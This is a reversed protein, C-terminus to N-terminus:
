NESSPTLLEKRLMFLYRQLTRAPTTRRHTQEAVNAIKGVYDEAAWCSFLQPNLRCRSLRHCIHWLFHMKPRIKYLPAREQLAQAALQVYLGLYRFGCAAAEQQPGPELLAGSSRVLFTFRALALVCSGCVLGANSRHKDALWAVALRVDAAKGGLWPWSHGTPFHLTALTFGDHTCELRQSNCWRRFEMFLNQLNEELRARVMKVGGALVLLVAGALDNACGDVYLIHMLDRWALAPHFGVIDKLATDCKAYQGVTAIWGSSVTMNTYAMPGDDQSALCETCIQTFGYGRDWHHAHQDWKLDGTTGLWAFIFPGTLPSGQRQARYTVRDIEATDGNYSTPWLGSQMQNLSWSVFALAMQLSVQVGDQSVLRRSPLTAVLFRHRPSHGHTLPSHWSIIYLSQDDLYEAEDAHVCVPVVQNLNRAGQLTPHARFWPESQLGNWFEGLPIHGKNGVAFETFVTVGEDYLASALEHPALIPLTETKWGGTKYDQILPIPILWPEIPFAFHLEAGFRRHFDREINQPARGENGLQSMQVIESHVKAAWM